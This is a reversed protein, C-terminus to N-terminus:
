EKPIPTKSSKFAEIVIDNHKAQATLVVAINKVIKNLKQVQAELAAIRQEM